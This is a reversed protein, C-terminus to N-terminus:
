FDMDQTWGSRQAIKARRNKRAERSLDKNQHPEHTMCQAEVQGTHQCLLRFLMQVMGTTYTRQQEENYGKARRLDEIVSEHLQRYVQKWLERRASKEDDAEAVLNEICSTVQFRLLPNQRLIEDTTKKVKQRFVSDHMLVGTSVREKPMAALAAAYSPTKQALEPINAQRLTKLLEPMTEPADQEVTQRIEKIAELIGNGLTNQMKWIAMQRNTKVTDDGNGYQKALQVTADLYRQYQKEMDPITKLMTDIMGDLAAKVDPPQYGYYMRGYAPLLQMVRYLDKSIQELAPNAELKALDIASFPNADLMQACLQQRLGALEAQQTSRTAKIEDAFLEKNWDARVQETIKEFVDPPIYENWPQDSNEWYMLHIHPHGKKQHFSAVWCFDKPAIKLRKSLNVVQTKLLEEWRKRDYLGLNEADQGGISIVARYVTHKESAQKLVMQAHSLDQIDSPLQMRNEPLVGWLGFGCGPNYVTGPRTAIYQLHAANLGASKANSKSNFRQKFVIGSM